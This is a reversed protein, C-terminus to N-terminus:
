SYVKLVRWTLVNQLKKITIFLKKQIIHYQDKFFHSRFYLQLSFFYSKHYVKMFKPYM